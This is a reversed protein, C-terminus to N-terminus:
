LAFREIHLQRRSVGARLLTRRLAAILGPPGCLYVDREALDPVLARLEAPSLPERGASEGVVYHLLLGRERAITALEGAFTKDRESHVRHVIVVDGELVEALARVPTIGIGGALLLTKERRRRSATFHGFPGEAVVRTGPAIAGIASSHDGSAKVSIRLSRGDPAASLSFPHASWWQGPALFRWIFFQGASAGLRDLRRGSM